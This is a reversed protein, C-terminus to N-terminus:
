SITFKSATERVEEKKVGPDNLDYVIIHFIYEGKPLNLTGKLFLRGEEKGSWNVYESDPKAYLSFKGNEREYLLNYIILAHLSDNKDKKLDYLECYYNALQGELYVNGPRPIIVLSNRIFKGGYKQVHTSDAIWISDAMIMRSIKEQGKVSVHPALIVSTDQYIGIKSTVSDRVSVAIKYFGPVLTDCSYQDVFLLDKRVLNKPFEKRIWASDQVVIKWNQDFIAVKEQFILWSKDPDTSNSFLGLKELPIGLNVELEYTDGENWFKWWDWAFNLPEGFDIKVEAKAMDIKETKTTLFQTLARINEQHTQKSSIQRKYPALEWCGTAHYDQFQFEGHELAYYVWVLSRSKMDEIEQNISTMGHLFIFSDHSSYYDAEEIGDPEGYLIYVDGRDDWPKQGLGTHYYTFVHQVRQDFEEKFENIETTLDPDKKKWWIRLGEERLSDPTMLFEEMEEKSFLLKLSFYLVKGKETKVLRDRKEDQLKKVFDCRAQEDKLSLYKIRSLSDSLVTHYAAKEETKLAQYRRDWFEKWISDRKSELTPTLCHLIYTKLEESTAGAKKLLKYEEQEKPNLNKPSLPGRAACSIVLLLLLIGLFSGLYFNKKVEKRETLPTRNLVEERETPRRVLLSPETNIM